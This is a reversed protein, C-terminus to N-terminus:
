IDVRAGEGYVTATEDIESGRSVVATVALRLLKVGALSASRPFCAAIEIHGEIARDVHGFIVADRDAGRSTITAFPTAGVATVTATASPPSQATGDRDIGCSRDGAGVRADLRYALAAGASSAALGFRAYDSEAVGPMAAVTSTLVPRRRM